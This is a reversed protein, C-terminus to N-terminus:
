LFKHGLCFKALDVAVSSTKKADSETGIQPNVEVLDLGVLQGTEAVKECIRRAERYTLGGMVKTGTSPCFEPDIADIDFSMHIPNERKPNIHDLAMEVVKDIGYIDVETMSFYKVGQEKVIVREENDVDRLGIYVVQHPKLCPKLWEFGVIPDKVLGMLFALPMGHINGSPSTEPTNIDAHADVWIIRLNSWAEAVAAISGVALSHDGGITLSFKKAKAVESVADYIKKTAAGVTRPHKAGKCDDDKEVESFQLDGKDIVEKGLGRISAVLGAERVWKPGFEV